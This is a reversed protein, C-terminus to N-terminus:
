LRERSVPALWDIEPGLPVVGTPNITPHSGYYHLKIQGLDCTSAVGAQQFIDRAYAWLHPYDTLRRVSCKFHGYYVADFRYLTPFLRIDAETLAQGCLYRQRTLHEELVDLTSFVLGVAEEYASQTTAFGARYVGNNLNPYIRDNWADIEPRLSEPYLDLTPNKASSNFESNLMRIIESSENNVITGESRDWLAPVTVRGTYRPDAAVYVEWLAEKGLIPDGDDASSFRWGGSGMYPDVATVSIVDELGKLARYILARHAWPCAYSVYLHYRDRDPAFRTTGDASVWGRFQSDKRVFRGSTKSTDYWEDSWVGEILKGV